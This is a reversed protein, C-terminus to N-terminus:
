NNEQALALKDTSWNVQDIDGISSLMTLEDSQILLQTQEIVSTFLDDGRGNTENYLGVWANRRSKKAAYMCHDAVDVVQEWTLARREGTSFPYCAFGISCTKKLVKEDGIDFDHNEVEQRLREALEPANSRETFRAIVLFEEGGWRVLFDTERFVQEFIVKIQILVADGATHGHIDNVMKFHDLDILFFILDASEPKKKSKSEYSSKYKRLVLLIDSEINNLLFRRNKLGTLQDTLSIEELMTNSKQLEETKFQLQSTREVVKSELRANVNREFVVKRRQSLIFVLVLSLLFVGYLTYAWWTKWWPPLITLKFSTGQENWVGNANSAKVTLVYNGAPLNTYTARRNKYDTFIWREDWGILRYKYQHKKTNTFHLTSFEFTVMNQQYNLTLAKTVHIAKELMFIDITSDITNKNTGTNSRISVSQNALFMDIFVLQPPDIDDIIKDTSFRNFGNLGGFYLDGTSSKFSAGENFRRNQLGDYIDYNHFSETKPNFRFLGNETSVWLRGENDEEISKIVDVSLGSNIDFRKFKNSQKNLRNLGNTTGVWLNGQSDETIASVFDGSLSDFNNADYRYHKFNDTQPNILDLGGGWSGVWLNGQRDETIAKVYDDGLSDLDNTDHQYRKFKENKYNFQNLGKSTGVWLNGQRDETIATVNDDGLSNLDDANHQYHKFIKREYNFQDLGNETGIWLNGQSDETIATVVGVSLSDPVKAHLFRETEPNFHNLGDDTGIWINGQHDEAIATVDDGSLSDLSNSDHRYHKFPETQPDFRNLGEWSGVWINGQRDETIANIGGRSLSHPDNADHQYNQFTETQPTFRNLGGYKTGVWLKGQRDETIALVEDHSLSKPENTDHQYRKFKENKYNFQNLGKSTGVWLNGQRDETIAMVAGDSLSDPNNADHRYHKFSDSQPNFRDLGNENGVWLNGQSDVTIAYIIDNSLSDSNNVDHRYHKFSNIQPEFRDLGNETGVWLNGQNDETIAWVTDHSLSTPINADHHFHRFTETQPNFLKLGNEWTGLWLNGNRDETITIIDTGSLSTLDESNHNFIKFSHGDYRALGNRTGIWLFGHRDQLIARTAYHPLGDDLNLQKFRIDFETSFASNTSLM